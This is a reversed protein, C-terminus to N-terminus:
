TKLEILFERCTESHKLWLIFDYIVETASWHGPVGMRMQFTNHEWRIRVIGCTQYYLGVVRDEEHMINLDSFANELRNGKCV